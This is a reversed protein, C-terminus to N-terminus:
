QHALARPATRATREARLRQGEAIAQEPTFRMIELDSYVSLEPFRARITPGVDTTVDLTTTVWPKGTVAEYIRPIM